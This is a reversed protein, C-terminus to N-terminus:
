CNSAPTFESGFEEFSAHSMPFYKSDSPTLATVRMSLSTAVILASNLRNFLCTWCELSIFSFENMVQNSLFFRAFSSHFSGYVHSSHLFFSLISFLKPQSQPNYARWVEWWGLSGGETGEGKPQGCLFKIM